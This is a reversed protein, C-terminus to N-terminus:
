FEGSCWLTYVQVDIKVTIVSKKKKATAFLEDYLGISLKNDLIDIGKDRSIVDMLTSDKRGSLVDVQPYVKSLLGKQSQKFCNRM